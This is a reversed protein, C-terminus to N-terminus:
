KQAVYVDKEENVLNFIKNINSHVQIGRGRSLDSPKMIWINDSGNISDQYSVDSKILEMM